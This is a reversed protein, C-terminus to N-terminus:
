PNKNAPLFRRDEAETEARDKVSVPDGADEGAVFGARLVDVAGALVKEVVGEKEKATPGGCGVCPLTDTAERLRRDSESFADRHGTVEVPALLVADPAPGLARETNWQLLPRPPAETAPGPRTAADEAGVGLALCTLLLTSLIRM